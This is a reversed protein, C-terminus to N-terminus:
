SNLYYLMEIVESRSFFVLGERELETKDAESLMDLIPATQQYVSTGSADYVILKTGDYFLTYKDSDPIATPISVPAQVAEALFMETQLAEPTNDMSSECLIGGFLGVAALGAAILLRPSLPAKQM